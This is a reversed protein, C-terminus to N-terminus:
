NKDTVNSFEYLKEIDTLTCHKAADIRIKWYETFARPYAEGSLVYGKPSLTFNILEANIQFKFIYSNDQQVYSLPVVTQLKPQYVIDFNNGFEDQFVKRQIDYFPQDIYKSMEDFKKETWDHQYQVFMQFAFDILEAKSIVDQYAEAALEQSPRIKIWPENDEAYRVSYANKFNGNISKTFEILDSDDTFTKNRFRISNYIERLFAFPTLGSVLLILALTLRPLNKADLSVAGNSSGYPGGIGTSASGGGKNHVLVGDAYFNHSPTIEVLNYITLPAQIHQISTIEIQTSTEGILHDGVKLNHVQILESGQAKEVYFPHTGTVQTTGNILYYDSTEAIQIEGITEIESQGNSVNLGVLQDGISLQEIPKYGDPTLIPTGTGFCGGRAYATGTCCFFVLLLSVLGIHIAQITRTM